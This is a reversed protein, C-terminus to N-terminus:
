THDLSEKPLSRRQIVDPLCVGNKVKCNTKAWLLLDGHSDDGGGVELPNDQQDGIFFASLSQDIKELLVQKIVDNHPCFSQLIPKWRGATWRTSPFWGYM